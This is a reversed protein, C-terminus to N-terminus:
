PLVKYGAVLGLKFHGSIGRGDSGFSWGAWTVLCMCNVSSVLICLVMGTCIPSAAIFMSSGAFYPFLLINCIFSCSLVLSFSNMSPSLSDLQPHAFLHEGSQLSSHTFETLVRLVSFACCSGFSPFVPLLLVTSSASSFIWERSSLSSSLVSASSCYSLLLFLFSLSLCRWSLLHAFM